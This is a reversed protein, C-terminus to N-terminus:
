TFCEGNDCAMFDSQSLGRELDERMMDLSVDLPEKSKTFYFEDDWTAELNIMENLCDKSHRLWRIADQHPCCDCQTSLLWPINRKTLEDQCQQRHLRMEVLPYKFRQWRNPSLKCRHREEFTIGFYKVAEKVGLSRLLKDAPQSKWKKTCAQRLKGGKSGFVPLDISIKGNLNQAKHLPPYDNGNKDIAKAIYAKLGYSEALPKTILEFYGKGTIHSDDNLILDNESGTDAWFIADVEIKGEGALVILYISPSGQGCQIIRM